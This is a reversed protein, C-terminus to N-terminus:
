QGPDDFLPFFFMSMGHEKGYTNPVLYFPTVALLIAAFFGQIHDEFLDKIFIFFSPISLAYFLVSSLRTMLDANQGLCYFPFYLISNIIVIGYRGGVAPQLHGTRYVDEVAKALIVSDYHFLGENIFYLGFFFASLFLATGTLSTNGNKDM